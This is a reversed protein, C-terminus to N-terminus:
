VHMPVDLGFAKATKFNIVLQYDSDHPKKPLRAASHSSLSAITLHRDERFRYPSAHDTRGIQFSQSREQALALGRRRCICRSGDHLEIGRM